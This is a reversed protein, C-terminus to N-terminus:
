CRKIALAEKRVGGEITRTALSFHLSLFMDDHLVVEMVGRYPWIVNNDVAKNV